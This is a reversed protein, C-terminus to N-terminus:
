LIKDKRKTNIHMYYFFDAYRSIHRFFPNFNLDIISRILRPFIVMMGVMRKKILRYLKHKIIIRLIFDPLIPILAFIFEFGVYEMRVINYGGKGDIGKGRYIGELANESLINSKCCNKLIKTKPYFALWFFAIFNPRYRKYEVVAKEYDEISEGPLGGIHDVILRIGSEKVLKMARMIEENSEPRNLVNSRISQNLTQIGIEIDTCGSIKLLNLTDRDLQRPHVACVFPKNIEIRYVELFDSLWKKNQIFTDDGFIVYSYRIGSKLAWKLEGIVNAVSRKRIYKKKDELTSNYCFSCTYPCGRSTMIYYRKAMHPAEHIFLQKDPNALKDLDDLIFGAPNRIIESNSKFFLNKIGQLNIRHLRDFRNALEVFAAEGEGICVIDICEEELVQEPCTTAHIGGFIIPTNLRDKVKAAIDRSWNFTESMVSFAVIDPATAAIRDILTNESFYKKNIWSIRCFADYFLKPDYVLSVFHGANKLSSSLYEIGLSEYAEAVFTVRM